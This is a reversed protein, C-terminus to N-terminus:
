VMGLLYRSCTCSKKLAAQEQTTLQSFSLIRGRCNKEGCKCSIYNEAADKTWELETMWYAFTIEEGKRIRKLAILSPFGDQRTKVYTNPNCSHNWYRGAWKKPIFHKYVGIQISIRPTQHNIIRGFGAAIEEGPNFGKKAFTTQGYSKKSTGIDANEKNFSLLEKETVVVGRISYYLQKGSPIYDRSVAEIEKFSTGARPSLVVHGKMHGQQVFIQQASPM